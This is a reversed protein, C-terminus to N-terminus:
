FIRARRAWLFCRPIHTPALAHTRALAPPRSLSRDLWRLIDFSEESETKQVAYKAMLAAAAEQLGPASTAATLGTGACIHCPHAWDRHLHPLPSGLEM